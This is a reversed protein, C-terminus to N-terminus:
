ILILIIFIIFISNIYYYTSCCNLSHLTDVKQHYVFSIESTGNLINDIIGNINSEVSKKEVEVCSKQHKFSDLSVDIYCCVTTTEDMTKKGTCDKKKTVSTISECISDDCFILKFLLFLLFIRNKM